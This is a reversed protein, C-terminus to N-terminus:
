ERCLVFYNPQAVGKWFARGVTVQATVGRLVDVMNGYILNSLGRENPAPAPWGAPQEDPVRTYDIDVEGRESADYAVFYGPGSVPSMTQHNYGWLESVGEVPRLMRKEFLTFAPMSNKGHHRVTTRAGRDPPVLDDITLVLHGEVCDYLLRQDAFGLARIAALRGAHDLDELLSTVEQASGGPARLLRRLQQGPGQEGGRLRRLLDM